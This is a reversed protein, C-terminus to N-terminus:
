YNSECLLDGGCGGCNLIFQLECMHFMNLKHTYLKPYIFLWLSGMETNRGGYSDVACFCMIKLHKNSTEYSRERRM